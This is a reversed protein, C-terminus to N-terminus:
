SLLLVLKGSQTNVNNKNKKAMQSIGLKIKKSKNLASISEQKKEVSAKRKGHTSSSGSANCEKRESVSPSVTGSSSAASDIEGNSKQFKKKALSGKRIDENIQKWRGPDTSKIRALLPCSNHSRHHSFSGRVHGSSDCDPVPCAM